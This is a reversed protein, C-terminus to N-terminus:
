KFFQQLENYSNTLDEKVGWGFSEFDQCEYLKDNYLNYLSRDKSKIIQQTIKFYMSCLNNYFAEDIDGYEFTTELAGQVFFLELSILDEIQANLQQYEKIIKKLKIADFDVSFMGRKPHIIDDMQKYYRSYIEQKYDDDKLIINMLVKSLPINKYLNYIMDVLENTNKTKLITKLQPLTLEKVTTSKSNTDKPIM